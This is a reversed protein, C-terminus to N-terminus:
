NSILRQFRWGKLMWFNEGQKRKGWEVERKTWCWLAVVILTKRWLLSILCLHFRKKSKAIDPKFHLPHTLGASVDNELTKCTMMRTFIKEEGLFSLPCAGCLAFSFLVRNPFSSLDCNKFAEVQARTKKPIIHFLFDPALAFRIQLVRRAIKLLTQLIFFRLVTYFM